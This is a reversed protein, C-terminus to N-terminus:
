KMQNIELYTKNKIDIHHKKVIRYYADIQITPNPFNLLFAKKTVWDSKILAMLILERENLALNYSPNGRLYDQKTYPKSM